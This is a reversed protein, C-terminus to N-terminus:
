NASAHGPFAPIDQAAFARVIGHAQASGASPTPAQARPAAEGSAAEPLQADPQHLTEHKRYREQLRRM